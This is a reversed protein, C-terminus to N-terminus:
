TLAAAGITALMVQRELTIFYFFGQKGVVIYPM